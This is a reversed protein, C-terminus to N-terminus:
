ACAFRLATLLKELQAQAGSNGRDIAIRTWHIADEGGSYMKFVWGLYAAARADGAEAARFFWEHAVELDGRRNYHAGLQAMALTNGQAALAEWSHLQQIDSM